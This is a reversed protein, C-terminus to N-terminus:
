IDQSMVEIIVKYEVETLGRGARSVYHLSQTWHNGIDTWGHADPAFVILRKAAAQMKSSQAAGDWMDTLEDFSVPMGEPYGPPHESAGKDLPHPGTDTWVVIVHRRKDGSTTWDSQIALALAELGSEPDDGGGRAEIGRVFSAFADSQDPLTFFDSVQLSDADAWFDRFAVVRVRLADIEKGKEDLAARFDREFNIAGEKVRDIISTMSGTANICLALDVSYRLGQAM